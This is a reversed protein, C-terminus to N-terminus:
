PRFAAVVRPKGALDYATELLTYNIETLIDRVATEQTEGIELFIRGGPKLLKFALASIARYHELGDPGGDLAKRPEFKAVEPDLKGIEATEIYPPNSIVVDFPGKPPTDKSWDCKAFDARAVLGLVKANERACALTKESADVGLGGAKPRESLIALLLCGTGTGLDLIKFPQHRPIKKLAAEVLTESDPRPILTAENVRFPLSWFEQVGTIRAVPERAERRQLLADFRKETEPPLDGNQRILLEERTIGLALSLLIEADLRPSAVGSKELTKAAESLAKRLSTM